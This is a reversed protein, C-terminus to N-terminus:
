PKGGPSWQPTFDSNALWSVPGIMSGIASDLHEWDIKDVSDTPQHYDSHLGYSSITQAIIGDRALAFNDSRTFFSQDPHPDGVLQAGHAALQPGLNTRQWGTLWLEGPKVKSDARGIMEFELNAIVDHLPFTPYKLFYRAGVLGAEESGWLAFVVTRQPRKEKALARALEMVAVTGSADDDAGPYTNGNRVGLHDLHASLLIIQQRNQKGNIKALVNWTHTTEWPTVDAHLKLPTGDALSWLEASATSTILGGDPRLPEDSIKKEPRLGRQVVQQFMTHADTPLPFLVIAARSHLYAALIGELSRAGADRKLKIVVAAGAKVSAPSVSPDSLDLKQLPATIDPQSASLLAMEEGQTLTVMRGGKDFTIVPTGTVKRTSVSGVQIYQKNEAAPKLGYSKLQAAIYQAAHHEDETGSGRGHLDPGALYDLNKRICAACVAPNTPKDAANLLLPLLLLAFIQARRGSLKLFDITRPKDLCTM